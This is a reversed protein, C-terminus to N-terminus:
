VFGFVHIGKSYGGNSKIQNGGNKNDAVIKGPQSVSLALSLRLAACVSKEQEATTTPTQERPNFPFTDKIDM